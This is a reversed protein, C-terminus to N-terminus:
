IIKSTSKQDSKAGNQHGFHIWFPALLTGLVSGFVIFFWGPGGLHSQPTGLRSWPPGLPKWSTEAQWLRDEVQVWRWLPVFCSNYKRARWDARDRHEQTRRLLSLKWLKSAIKPAKKHLLVKFIRESCTCMHYLINANMDCVYVCSVPPAAFTQKEEWRDIGCDGHSCGSQVTESAGPLLPVGHEISFICYDVWNMWAFKKLLVPCAFTQM